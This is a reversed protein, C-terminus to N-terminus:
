RSRRGFTFKDWGPASTAEVMDFAAVLADVQDDTGNEEGTFFEVESVFSKTWKAGSRVLIRGQGWASATRQARTFKNHRAPMREISVDRQFLLNLIGKENGGMYCGYRANPYARMLEKFEEAMADLSSRVRLVHDVYYVGKGDRALVVAVSHDSTGSSGYGFDFGIAVHPADSPLQDFMTARSFVAGERPRPTGQYQTEWAYTGVFEPSEPSRKLDLWSMPKVDPWLAHETGEADTRVAPLNYETYGKSLLYGIPDDPHWRTGIALISGGVWLRQTARDIDRRIAERKEETNLDVENEVFDDFVIHHMQYGAIGSGPSFAICGGGGATRWDDKRAHDAMLEGGANVYIRMIEDTRHSSFIKAYSGYGFVWHPHRFLLWAIAYSALTTNHTVIDNALFSDDQDVMICYCDDQGVPEVSMVCDKIHMSRNPATERDSGGSKAGLVPVEDFFARDDTVSLLWSNHPKGNYRGNKAMLHSSVGLRALLSRVDELLGKSVSSFSSNQGCRGDVRGARTGDCEFYAAVFAAVAPRSASFVSEPVRKTHAGHGMMGHKVVFPKAGNARYSQARLDPRLNPVERVVSGISRACRKFSAVVHPDANTFMVSNQTVGGDGAIYGLFRAEDVTLSSTPETAYRAGLMMWDNDWRDRSYAHLEDARRWATKADKSKSRRVLFLHSGEATVTRGSRTTIKLVDLRGQPYHGTVNAVNGFGSIVRDGVKVDRIPVRSGDAMTILTDGALPKGHQPPMSICAHISSPSDVGLGEVAHYYDGLHFPTSINGGSAFAIFEDLTM